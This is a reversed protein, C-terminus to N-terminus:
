RPLFRTFDSLSGCHSERSFSCRQKPCSNRLVNWLQVVLIGERENSNWLSKHLPVQNVTATKMRM